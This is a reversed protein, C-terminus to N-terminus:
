FGEGTRSTHSGFKMVFVSTAMASPAESANVDFKSWFCARPKSHCALFARGQELDEVVPGNDKEATGALDEM